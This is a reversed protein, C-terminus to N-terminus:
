KVFLHDLCADKEIACPKLGAGFSETDPKGSVFSTHDIPWKCLRLFENGSIPQDVHIGSLFGHIPSEAARIRMQTVAFDFEPLKEFDVIKRRTVGNILRPFQFLVKAAMFFLPSLWSLFSKM